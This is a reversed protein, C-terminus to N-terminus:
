QQAQSAQKTIGLDGTRHAGACVTVSNYVAANGNKISMLIKHTHYQLILPKLTRVILLLNCCEPQAAFAQHNNQLYGVVSSTKYQLYRPM